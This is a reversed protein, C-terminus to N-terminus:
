ALDRCKTFLITVIIILSLSTYPCTRCALSAGEIENLLLSGDGHHLRRVFSWKAIIFPAFSSLKWDTRESLRNIYRVHQYLIHLYVEFYMYYSSIHYPSWKQKLIRISNEESLFCRYTLIDLFCLSWLCYEWWM